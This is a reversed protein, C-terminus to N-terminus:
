HKYVGACVVYVDAKECYMRKPLIQQTAPDLFKYEHWFKGKSRALEIRERMYPKGDVDKLEILDKGLMKPNTGHAIMKGSLDHVSPYLDRDIWRRANIEAFTKQPDAKIAAVARAVMAEAEQPTAYDAAGASQVFVIAAAAAIRHKM